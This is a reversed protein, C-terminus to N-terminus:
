TIGGPVWVGWPQHVRNLVKPPTRILSPWTLCLWGQAWPCHSYWHGSPSPDSEFRRRETVSPPFDKCGTPRHTSQPRPPATSTQLSSLVSGPWGQQQKPVWTQSRPASLSPSLIKLPHPPPPPQPTLLKDLWSDLLSDSLHHSNPQPCNQQGPPCVKAQGGNGKARNSFKMPCLFLLLGFPM